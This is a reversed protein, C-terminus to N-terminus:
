KTATGESSLFVKVDDGIPGVMTKIGFDSRKITFVSEIGAIPTQKMDKGSGTHEITVTIPKTVGHFTLDGAVEYVNKGASTVTKSKFTINPFQKADFFDGKLHTDRGANGTDVSEAKITFDFASKAPDAEDIAFTGSIANFRGYAYSTDLHKVRFMVSSHVGDVKYSGAQAGLGFIPVLAAAMALVRAKTM